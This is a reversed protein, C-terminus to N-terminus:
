SRVNEAKRHRSLLTFQRIFSNSDIKGNLSSRGGRTMTQPALSIQVLGKKESVVKVGSVYESYLTGEREGSVVWM